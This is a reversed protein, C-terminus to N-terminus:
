EERLAALPHLRSASRAPLYRALLRVTLLVAAAVSVPDGASVGYIARGAGRLLFAVQGVPLANALTVRRRSRGTTRIDEKLTESVTTRTARLAPVTGFVFGTLLSRRGDCVSWAL